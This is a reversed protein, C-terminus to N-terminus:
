EILGDLQALDDVSIEVNGLDAVKVTGVNIEINVLETLERIFEEREVGEVIVEKKEGLVLKGEADKKGYKTLLEKRVEDYKDLEEDIRKQIGRLAYATMVPIKQTKLKSLANHLEEDLLRALKM